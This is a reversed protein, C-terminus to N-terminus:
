IKLGLLPKLCQRIEIEFWCCEKNSIKQFATPLDGWFCEKNSIKQFATPLDGWFSNLKLKLRIKLDKSIGPSPPPFFVYICHVTSDKYTPNWNPGFPGSFFMCFFFLCFELMYNPNVEQHHHNRHDQRHNTIPKAMVPAQLTTSRM